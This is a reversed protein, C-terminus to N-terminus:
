IFPKQRQNQYQSCTSGETENFLQQLTPLLLQLRRTKYQHKIITNEPCPTLRERYVMLRHYLKDLWRYANRPNNCQTAKKFAKQISNCCLLANLFDSLHAASYQLKPIVSTLYLRLTTGCGSRGYRNSCFLRRGMIKKRGKSQKKYIFDHVVFHNGVSCKTCTLKDRCLNLDATFQTATWKSMTLNVSNNIMHNPLKM